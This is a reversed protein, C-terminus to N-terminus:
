LCASVNFVCVPILGPHPFPSCLQPGRTAAPPAQPCGLTTATPVCPEPLTWVSDRPGGTGRCGRASGLTTPVWLISCSLQSTVAAHVLLLPSCIKPHRAGIGLCAGLVRQWPWTALSTGPGQYGSGLIWQRPPPTECPYVKSADRMM